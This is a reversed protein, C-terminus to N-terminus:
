VQEVPGTLLAPLGRPIPLLPAVEQVAVDSFHLRVEWGNNLLISHTWTPPTEAGLEDYLWEVRDGKSRVQAPLADRIVVPDEILQYQLTLLSRPPTDLQLVVVFVRGQQGMGQITADHLYYGDILSRLGPPFHPRVTALYAEYDDCVRDWEEEHRNLVADDTSQGQVIRDPTFYKM